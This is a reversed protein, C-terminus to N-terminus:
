KTVTARNLVKLLAETLNFMRGETDKAFESLSNLQTVLDTWSIPMEAVKQGTIKEFLRKDNVTNTWTSSKLKHTYLNFNDQSMVGKIQTSTAGLSIMKNEVALRTDKYKDIKNELHNIKNHALKVVEIREMTKDAGIVSSLVALAKKGRISKAKLSEIKKRLKGTAIYSWSLTLQVAMKEIYPIVLQYAYMSLGMILQMKLNNMAEDVLTLDEGKKVALDTLRKQETFIITSVFDDATDEISNSVVGGLSVM